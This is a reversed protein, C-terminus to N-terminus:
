ELNAAGFTANFERCWIAVSQFADVDFDSPLIFRQFGKTSTLPSIMIYEGKVLSHNPAESNKIVDKSRHLVVFLDPGKDTKFNESFEIYYRGNKAKVLYAKGSTKHEGSEFKGSKIKETPGGDPLWKEQSMSSIQPTTTTAPFPFAVSFALVILPVTLKLKM